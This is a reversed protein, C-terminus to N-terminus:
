PNPDKLLSYKTYHKRRQLNAPAKQLCEESGNFALSVENLILNLSRLTDFAEQPVPCNWLPMSQREARCYTARNPSAIDSLVMGTSYTVRWIPM